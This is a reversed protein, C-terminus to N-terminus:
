KVGLVEKLKEMNEPNPNMGGQEWMRVSNVSVHMLRALEVQTLGKKVRQEKINM